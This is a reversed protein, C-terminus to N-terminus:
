VFLHKDTFAIPAENDTVLRNETDVKIIGRTKKAHCNPCLTWLNQLQEDGGQSKEVIHDIEIIYGPSGDKKIYSERFGCVQCTFDYMKAVIRKQQQSEKRVRKRGITEKYQEEQPVYRKALDILQADTLDELKADISQSLRAEVEETSSLAVPAQYESEKDLIM